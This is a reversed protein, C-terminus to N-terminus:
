PRLPPLRFQQHCADCTAQIAEVREEVAHLSLSPAEEALRESREGLQQALRRFEHHQAGDLDAGLPAHEIDRASRAMARAVEAISGARLEREAHIDMAQPLRADRLRELGRMLETLRQSHVGHAAPAPARELREEYRGQASGGCGACVALAALACLLLRTGM